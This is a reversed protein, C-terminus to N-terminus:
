FAYDSLVFGVVLVLALGTLTLTHGLWRWAHGELVRRPKGKAFARRGDYLTADRKAKSREARHMAASTATVVVRAQAAENLVHSPSVEIPSESKPAIGHKNCLWERMKDRGIRAPETAPPRRAVDWPANVECILSILQPGWLAGYTDWIADVIIAEQADLQGAVANILLDRRIPGAGFRRLVNYLPPVVPGHEWAEIPEHFLSHGTLALAWGEALYVLKQMQLPDIERRDRQACGLFRDAVALATGM